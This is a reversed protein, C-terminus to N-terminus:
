TSRRAATRRASSRAPSAFGGSGGGGGISQASIAHAETAETLIDSSSRVSVNGAAGGVDGSGGISLNVNTTRSISGAVSFGGDGGGGGISQAVIGYSRDGSTMILDGLSIAEVDGGTGGGAGAGGISAGVSAGQTAVSGTVSFGGSGGGGGISQAFLGHADAGHTVITSASRVSM